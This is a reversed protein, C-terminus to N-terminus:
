RLPKGAVITPRGDIDRWQTEITLVGSDGTYKIQVTSEEAGVDVSLVEASKVPLPLGKALEPAQPRLEESFDGIVTDMDGRVVADAHDQVQKRTKADDM